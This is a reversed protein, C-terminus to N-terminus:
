AAKRSLLENYERMIEEQDYEDNGVMQEYFKLEEEYPADNNIYIKNYWSKLAKIIADREAYSEYSELTLEKTLFDFSFDITNKGDNVCVSVYNRMGSQLDVERGYYRFHNNNPCDASTIKDILRALWKYNKKAM